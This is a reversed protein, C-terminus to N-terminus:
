NLSFDLTTMISIPVNSDRNPNAPSSDKWTTSHFLGIISLKWHRRISHTVLLWSYLPCQGILLINLYRRNYTFGFRPPLVTTNKNDTSIFFWLDSREDLVKITCIQLTEYRTYNPAPISYFLHDIVRHFIPKTDSGILIGNQERFRGKGFM